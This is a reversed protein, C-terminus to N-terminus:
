KNSNWICIFISQEVKASDIVLTVFINSFIQLVERTTWPILIRRGIYPVPTQDRTQSSEVHRPAVIGMCWQQAWVRSGMGQLLLWWSSGLCQMQPFGM